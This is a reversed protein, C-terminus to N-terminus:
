VAQATKAPEHVLVLIQDASVSPMAYTRGNTDSFEVLCQDGSRDVVTGVQGRRLNADPLDVLLAVVDLEKVENQQAM